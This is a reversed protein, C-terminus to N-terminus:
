KRRLKNVFTILIFIGIGFVLIFMVAIIIFSKGLDFSTGLDTKIPSPSYITVNTNDPILIEEGKQFKGYFSDNLYITYEYGFINLDDDIKIIKYQQTDLTDYIIETAKVMSPMLFLIIFIGWIIINQKIKNM